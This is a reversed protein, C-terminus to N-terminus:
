STVEYHNCFSIMINTAQGLLSGGISQLQGVNLNVIRQKYLNAQIEKWQWRYQKVSNNIKIKQIGKLM